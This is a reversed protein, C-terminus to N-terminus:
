ELAATGNGVSVVEYGANELARALYTRMSADDEALLIRIMTAVNGVGSGRVPNGASSPM